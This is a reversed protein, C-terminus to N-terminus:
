AILALSVIILVPDHHRFHPQRCSQRDPLTCVPKQPPYGTKELMGKSETARFASIRSSLHAKSRAHKSPYPVHIETRCLSDVDTYNRKNYASNYNSL